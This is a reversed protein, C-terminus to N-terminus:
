RRKKKQKDPKEKRQFLSPFTSYVKGTLYVFNSGGILLLLERPVKPLKNPDDVTMLLYSLAGVLTLMLLQVRGPSRRNTTKDFLLKKMNIRGTLLQYGVIFLLGAILAWIEYRVFIILSEM